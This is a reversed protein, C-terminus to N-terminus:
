HGKHERSAIEAETHEAQAQSIDQIILLPVTGYAILSLAVNGYPWRVAGTHGHACLIVLDVHEQKVLEHLSATVSDSILVQSSVDVSLQSQLQRLYRSAELRNRETLQNILEVDEPLPPARRVLTPKQTVHTLLLRSDHFEALSVAHRLVSEARLSGDLPVMIQRYHMGALDCTPHQYARVILISAYARLAIKQVVSSINWGSLGSGGHSSLCILDVREAHAFEIVQEAAQGERIVCQPEVGIEQLRAAIGHLYAEAESRRIHWTLPDVPRSGREAGIREVIHILTIRSDFARAIALCHPLACEALTSGDLPVLIHEFM